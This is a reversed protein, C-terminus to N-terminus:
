KLRTMIIEYAHCAQGLSAEYALAYFHQNIHDVHNTYNLQITNRNETFNNSRFTRVAFEYPLLWAYTWASLVSIWSTEAIATRYGRNPSAAVLMWLVLDTWPLPDTSLFPCWSLRVHLSVCLMCVCVAGRARRSFWLVLYYSPISWVSLPIGGLPNGLHNCFTHHLLWAVECIFYLAQHPVKGDECWPLMVGVPIVTHLGVAASNVGWLSAGKWKAIGDTESNM